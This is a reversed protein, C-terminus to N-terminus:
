KLKTIGVQHVRQNDADVQHVFAVIRVNNLNWTSQFANSPDITYIFNQIVVRGAEKTAQGALIELGNFPSAVDRFINNHEYMKIETPFEQYDDIKDEVIYLTIAQKGTMEKTYSVKVEFTYKGGDLPKSTVVVNVPPTGNTANATEMMSSWNNKYDLISGELGSTIAIPMRDFGACPKGIDGGFITTLIQDGIETRFDYKSIKDDKNIPKTYAVGAHMTVVALKGEFTGAANAAKLAATGEPCNVCRVGSPEEVLFMKQQVAEVAAIYTTDAGRESQDVIIPVETCSAFALLSLSASIIVKKM